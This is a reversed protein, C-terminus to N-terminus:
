GTTMHDKYQPAESLNALLTCIGRNQGLQVLGQGGQPTIIKINGRYGPQAAGTGLGGAGRLRESLRTGKTLSNTLHVNKQRGTTVPRKKTPSSWPQGAVMDAMQAEHPM